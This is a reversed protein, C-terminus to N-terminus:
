GKSCYVDEEDEVGANKMEKDANEDEGGYEGGYKPARCSAKPQCVIINWPLLVDEVQCELEYLYIAYRRHDGCVVQKIEPPMRKPM